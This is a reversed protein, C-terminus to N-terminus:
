YSKLMEQAQSWATQLEPSVDLVPEDKWLPFVDAPYSKKRTQVQNIIDRIGLLYENAKAPDGANLSRRAAVLYGEALSNYAKQLNPQYQVYQKLEQIAADTQGAAMYAQALVYHGMPESPKVTVAEKGFLISQGLYGPGAEALRYYLQSLRVITNINYPDLRLSRLLLSISDHVAGQELMVKSRDYYVRALSFYGTILILVVCVAAIGYKFLAPKTQRHRKRVPEHPAQYQNILFGSFGWFLLSIVGYSLDFDVISHIGLAWMFLMIIKTIGPPEGNQRSFLMKTGLGLIVAWVGVFAIFGVVGAELWTQLYANHINEAYYAYTQYKLYYADWGQGGTGLWFNNSIIKWADHMIYYRERMSGETFSISTIRTLSPDSFAVSLIFGAAILIILLGFSIRAQAPNIQFKLRDFGICLVVAVLAILALVGLALFKQQNAAAVLALPMGALSPIVATGCYVVFAKFEKRFLMAAALLQILFLVVVIRSQTGLFTTFILASGAATFYRHLKLQSSRHFLLGLFFALGLFLAATNKYGITTQFINGAYVGEISIIELVALWTILSCAVAGAYAFVATHQIFGPDPKYLRVWFYLTFYGALKLDTIMAEHLDGARFTSLIYTLFIILVLIDLTHWKFVIRSRFNLVSYTMVLLPALIGIFIFPERYLGMLLPATFFTFGMIYAPIEYEKQLNKAEKKKGILIFEEQKSM